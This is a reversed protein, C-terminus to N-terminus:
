SIQIMWNRPSRGFFISICICWLLMCGFLFGSSNSKNVYTWCPFSSVYSYICIFVYVYVHNTSKCLGATWSWPTRSGKKRLFARPAELSLPPKPDDFSTPFGNAGALFCATQPKQCSILKLLPLPLFMPPITTILFSSCPLQPLWQVIYLRQFPQSTITSSLLYYQHDIYLSLPNLSHLLFWQRLLLGFNSDTPFACLVCGM